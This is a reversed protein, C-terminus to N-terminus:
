SNRRKQHHLTNRTVLSLITRGSGASGSWVIPDVSYTGLAGTLWDTLKGQFATVAAALVIGSDLSAAPLGPVYMRGRGRRSAAATYWTIVVASELPVPQASGLGPQNVSGHSALPNSPDITRADITSLETDASIQNLLTSAPHNVTWMDEHAAVANDVDAQTCPSHGVGFHLVNQALGGNALTWSATSRIVSGLTYIAM